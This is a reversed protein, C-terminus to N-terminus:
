KARLRWLSTVEKSRAAHLADDDKQARHHTPVTDIRGAVELGAAEIAELLLARSRLGLLEALDSIILWGEGNETLHDPLGRLFQMLMKSDPDYVAADLTSPASGPLWPPNCVVLPARGEPFMSTLQASATGDLGLRQFNENACDVARQHIDTGIIQKVGRRALVAALVGTGTGIDFALSLDDLEATAVLQVYEQRTPMFTGYAPHISAGLAPVEVGKLYWQHASLMGSLEQLSVLARQGALHVAQEYGFAVAPGIAPARPLDLHAMGDEASFDVAVLILSLMRARQARAQRVAYFKQGDDLVKKKTKARGAKATSAATIRREMAALLQKANHFDGTWVMATGGTALRMAADATLRDDAVVFKAPARRDNASLWLAAASDGQHEWSVSELM